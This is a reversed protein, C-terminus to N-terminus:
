RLGESDLGGVARRLRHRDGDDTGVVTRHDAAHAAAGQRLVRGRRDGPLQVDAVHIDVVGMAPRHYAAIRALVARECDVLGALPGEGRVVVHLAQGLALGHLLLERDLDAVTLAAEVVLRHRDGKGARVIHRHQAGARTRHRFILVNAVVAIQHGAALQRDRIRVRAFAAELRARMEVAARAVAIRRQARQRELRITRIGVRDGVVIRHHLAQLGAFADDFGVRDGAQITRLRAGDRDGDVARVIARDDSRVIRARRALRFRGAVVARHRFVGRRVRGAALQVHLIRIRALGLERGRRIVGARVARERDVLVAVPRVLQVVAIRRYLGQARALRQGFGERHARDVAARRVLDHHRDDARVVHRHHAGARARHGFVLASAVVAIQDGAALQGDGVHVGALAAELRARLEVAARAVAVRRQARQGEVGVTRVAVRDGIVIRHYLAQLGAFADDFGVRDGAQITRLGAGDRDGDVARVVARDDSRVIRARRALRFRGAVVARHRFVGRRVRGAALQVHLIRIRALGLERGRRIVGARVARERDVLVAVPRVLQVVAIRRHLGQARALRQGFGERHARDVAARRVLDHHGDDARVVHRHHAGARARHRFVLANAVVAVQHGAALQGDGVHVGALAAELRARLEVAARAVAVRRQARQGEVGVTRVAVRDGIVIRHYLAQLGAFADDFGVRDGAQVARLGAGDRDGDVARVVARDDSRVIRARGALRFRGAVVARHRFVGRRVRGAALQIHLIRIRALGLERGRRIVGARVARERDVLVAVPRVLQVVAIRRYLGQARALRQGFGERHARDVAAGRMLDHHGDDARVVHRHHAGARARHRFVLVDAVVAVQHGAALQRDGVHVGTFAAELRARLKVAARAVAIRRQARQGEVRITRVGVRHRVVIRHHLAQLGALADHFGVRDGAQVARLGAGDRDGDIARIVRGLHDAVDIGLDALVGVRADIHVGGAVERVHIGAVLQGVGGVAQRGSQRDVLVGALDRASDVMGRRLTPRVVVADVLNDDRGGVGGALGGRLGEFPIDGVRRRLGQIINGGHVSVALRGAVHNQAIGAHALVRVGVAIGQLDDADLTVAVRLGDDFALAGLHRAIMAARERQVGIAAVGEVRAVIEIAQALAFGARRGDGVRHRVTLTARIRGRQGDRDRAGIHQRHRVVIGARGLLVDHQRDGVGGVAHQAIVGVAVGAVRQHDIGDIAIGAVHALLDLAAIAAGEGQVGVTGIGEIGAVGEVVQGVALRRGRGNGVGDGVAM